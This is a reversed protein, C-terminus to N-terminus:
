YPSPASALYDDTIREGNQIMDFLSSAFEVTDQKPFIIFLVESGGSATERMGSFGSVSYSKVEWDQLNASAIKVLDSIESSSLDTEFCGAMSDIVNSYNMLISAGSKKMKDIIATIVRIQNRGRALDGDGFAERERAYYLAEEGNLTIRGADYFHEHRYNWFATPNDLTIGGIADILKIFGDFNM